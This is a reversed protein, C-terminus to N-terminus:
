KAPAPTQIFMLNANYAIWLRHAQIYAEGILLDAGPLKFDQILVTQGAVHEDGSRDPDVAGRVAHPHVVLLDFKRGGLKAEEAREGLPAAPGEASRVQEFGDPFGCRIDLRTGHVHM